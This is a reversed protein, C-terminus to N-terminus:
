PPMPIIFHRIRGAYARYADASNMFLSDNNYLIGRSSRSISDIGNMRTVLLGVLIKLDEKSYTKEELQMQQALPIRDYNLGWLINFSIYIWLLISFTMKLSLLLFRRHLTRRFARNVFRVLSFVIYIFAGAYLIDGVSFPIWGFLLRLLRSILPYIGTSYYKEVAEPFFSFIKIGAVILLPVLWPRISKWHMDKFICIILADMRYQLNYMM